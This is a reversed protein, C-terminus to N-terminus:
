KQMDREILNCIYANLSQGRSAAHAKIQERHGKPVVLNLRDYAKQNYKNSARTRANGKKKNTNIEM